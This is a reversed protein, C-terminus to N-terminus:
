GWGWLFGRKGAEWKGEHEVFDEDGVAALDGEADDAGAFVEADTSEGDVGFGIVVGKVDLGGVFGDADAWSGACLTIKFDIADDGGGFDAIDVGDVRPVTKERFAGVEGFDALGTVDAEDTRGRIGNTFHSIFGEGSFIGAFSADGDGWTAIAGDSGFMFGDFGCFFDSVGHHDFGDSTAAAFAHSGGMVVDAEDFSEEGGPHFRFFGEAVGVDVEFFEDFFRVMDFELDQAIFATFNNVDALAVAGDLAAVLLEKFFGGGGKEIVIQTFPHALGGDFEGFGDVVFVGAGHLEEDIVRAVVVKEFHIGADLDFVGHGFFDVADIENAFLDADGCALAKTGLEIIESGEAVGDFEADIGFIGGVVEARAWAGDIEEVRWSADTDAEIGMEVAAVGYGGEVIGHDAFEDGRSGVASGGDRPHLAGEVFGDDASNFGGDGETLSDDAILVEAPAFVGGVKEFAKKFTFDLSGGSEHERNEIGGSSVGGELLGAEVSDEIGGVCRGGRPGVEGEFEGLTAGGDELKTGFIKRFVFDEGGGTSEGGEEGLEAQGEDKVVVGVEDNGGAGGTAVEALVVEWDGFGAAEKAGGDEEAEGGVGGALGDGALGEAGIIEAETGEEGCACFGIVGGDAGGFNTLDNAM